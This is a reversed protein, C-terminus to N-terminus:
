LTLLVVSQQCKTVFLVAQVRCTRALRINRKSIAATVCTQPNLLVKRLWHRYVIVDFSCQWSTPKVRVVVINHVNTWCRVLVPNWVLFCCCKFRNSCFGWKVTTQKSKLTGIYIYSKMKYFLSSFLWFPCCLRCLVWVSICTHFIPPLESIKCM